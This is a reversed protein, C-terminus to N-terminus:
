PMQVLLMMVAFFILIAGTGRQVWRLVGPRMLWRRVADGAWALPAQWLVNIVILTAALTILQATVDDRRTDVFNPFLALFLIIVKPNLLNCLIADRMAQAASVPPGNGDLRLPGHHRFSQLGLWALYVAGAVAVARFATPSSAIVASIGAVALLTHLVLGVQVGLVTALGIRKGSSLTYRLILVTDPGPSLVVAGAAVIFAGFVSIEVPM